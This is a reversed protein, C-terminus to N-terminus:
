IGYVEKLAKALNIEREREGFYIELELAKAARVVIILKLLDSCTIVMDTEKDCIEGSETQEIESEAIEQFDNITQIM